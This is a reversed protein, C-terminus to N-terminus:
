FYRARIKVTVHRALGITVPQDDAVAGDLLVRKAIPLTLASVDRGDISVIADGAHIGVSAAPGGTQVHVVVLAGGREDVRMGLTGPADSVPTVVHVTGMDVRQGPSATYSVEDAGFDPLRPQDASFWVTQTGAPARDLVFHGSADTTTSSEGGVASVTVGSLPKNTMASVVTGTLSAWGPLDVVIKTDKGARTTAKLKTYGGDAKIECDLEAAPLGRFTVPPVADREDGFALATPANCSISAKPVRSGQQTVDITLSGRPELTITVSQGAKIGSRVGHPGGVPYQAGVTYTGEPIDFRFHGTDDTTTQGLGEQPPFPADGERMAAVHARAVPKGTADIVQGTIVGARGPVVVTVDRVDTKGDVHVYTGDKFDVTVLYDGAELSSFKFSGDAATRAFPSNVGMLTTAKEKRYLSQRYVSLGRRPKGDADVVRGSITSRPALTVVLGSQAAGAVNIPLTGFRGDVTTAVIEFNGDPIQPLRFTGSADTEVRTRGARAYQNLDYTGDGPDFQLEVTAVTPPEVRGSLTVGIDLEITVDGVDRDSITIPKEDEFMHTDTKGSLTYDGPPLGVIHFAGSADTSATVPMSPERSPRASIVADEVGIGQGGKQVLRGSLTFAPDVEIEIGDVLQGPTVLVRTSTRTAYGAARAHFRYEMASLDRFEFAGQADTRIGIVGFGSVLANALPAHTGRIVIRGRIVSGPVLSFNIVESQSATVNKWESAYDTHAAQFQYRGDALALAYHGKPDTVATFATPRGYLRAIVLAHDLPAGDSKTVMGELVIGGDGLTFDIADIRATSSVRVNSRSAAVFGRANATVEYNGAKPVTMSWRGNADTRVFCVPAVVPYPSSRDPTSLTVIAGAIASGDSKRTVRGSLTAAIM